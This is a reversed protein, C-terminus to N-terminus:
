GQTGNAPYMSSAFEDFQEIPLPHSFFYGQYNHCGNLALFDRQGETELGEAIVTLGMSQSLAVITKAIAADNSDTLVDRVFSQDIKLQNLPLRKLYSLSSYGTGFDDLSFNIGKAKLATMKAVVDDVNDLLMGETIELKLNGPNVGFYDVLALVEDVFTPLSFQKPSVNVAMTLHAMGPCSAWTALQQCATALVWHGLPLILGTEEALPIFETPPIMGRVPHQWRVLAEVGNLRGSSDVQAQYYLLFQEQGSVARRLDNELDVRAMVLAQLDPDFFRMTNRGDAKAQYLAVDARRLMEDATRLTGRFLTAGISATSHYEYKKLLYPQALTLRIKEGVAEAQSAATADEPDLDEILVVFEDGGLRAATDGQRVCAQLRAAVEILLLDGTDHGQIDNLSKFNDLDILLLAGQRKNRMNNVLAQQLRDILLRRNPLKTLPDYFALNSIQQEAEKRETIDRIHATFLSKGGEQIATVSLEIPFESGDSRLASIELHSNLIPADGTQLFKALGDRHASRYREPILTDAMSLGVVQEKNWGFIAEAAPNFEILKGTADIGVVADLATNITARLRTESETLKQADDSLRQRWMAIARDTRLVFFFLAAYMVAFLGVVTLAISITKSYIRDIIPTADAYIEIVGIRKGAHTLPMYTQAVYRDHLEGTHSIFTKSFEMQHLTEGQLAKALLAPNKTTGGIEDKVTSFIVEGVPNFIKLKLLHHERVTDLATALLAVNPNARLALADLGETASIFTEIRTDLLHILHIATKENEQAAIGEHESFQDRQYLFILIAATVFMALLSTLSLRRLLRSGPLAPTNISSKPDDHQGVVRDATM